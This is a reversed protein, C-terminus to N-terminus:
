PETTRTVSEVVLARLTNLSADLLEATYQPEGSGTYHQYIGLGHVDGLPQEFRVWFKENWHHRDAAYVLHGYDSVTVSGEPLTVHASLLTALGSLGDDRERRQLLVVQRNGELQIDFRVLPLTSLGCPVLRLRSLLEGSTADRLQGTMVLQSTLASEDLRRLDFEGTQINSLALTIQILRNDLAYERELMVRVMGGDGLPEIYMTGEGTATTAALSPGFNLDGFLPPTTQLADFAIEVDGAPLTLVTQEDLERRLDFGERWGGCMTLTQPTHIRLLASQGPLNQGNKLFPRIQKIILGNDERRIKFELDLLIDERQYPGVDIPFENDALLLVNGLTLLENDSMVWTGTPMLSSPRLRRIGTVQGNSVILQDREPVVGPDPLVVSVDGDQVNILYDRSQAAPDGTFAVGNARENPFAPTVLVAMSVDLHNIGYYAREEWARFNWLSAWVKKLGREITREKPQSADCHSPGRRDNDFTDLVCVSTSDYLGAGNFELGDEANSSSRFRVMVGQGFIEDIRAGVEAVLDPSVLGNDRMEDRLDDLREARLEPNTRFAPDNHLIAVYEAYTRSVPPDFRRDLLRNERMFRDYAKFPIALAAVQHETPLFTYLRALNAAKGGVRTTASYDVENAGITALDDVQSYTVDPLRVTVTPPRQQAWWAEAEEQSVDTEVYYGTRTVSLRILQDAYPTLAAHSNKLYANPTGRRATRINLHSLEGQRDGTVIAAVISELDTPVRDIVVIEQLSLRGAQAMEELENLTLLRLIGYTQGVTYAEYDPSATEAPFEIAFEPESWSLALEVAAPRSPSYVLPRRRFTRLLRQYLQTTEEQTLLEGEDSPDTYVDFGYVTQGLANTFSKLGGVLYERTARRSVLTIYESPTMGAFHEPFAALLFEYHLPKANVNQYAAVFPANASDLPLIFKGERLLNATSSALTLSEFQASSRVEQLFLASDPAPVMDRVPRVYGPRLKAPRYDYVVFNSSGFASTVYWAADKGPENENRDYASTTSSWWIFAEPDNPDIPANTFLDPDFIGNERGAQSISELEVLNPMRWDDYGAYSLQNVRDISTQWDLPENLAVNGAVSQPEGGTLLLPNRIWMLGTNLDIAVNEDATDILGDHEFAYNQSLGLQLDGDDGNNEGVEGTDGRYGITQGTRLLAIPDKVEVYRVPRLSFPTGKGFPYTHGNLFNVYFANNPETPFTTSTWFYPSAYHEFLTPFARMNIAPESRGYNVLTQLEKLNPLRWDDYGGYLLAQSQEIAEQWTFTGDLRINGHPGVGDDGDLLTLDRIWMLGTNQDIVLNELQSTPATTPAYQYSQLRGRILDGDDRNGEALVGSVGRYAITQGTSLLRAPQANSDSVSTKIKILLPLLLQYSPGGSNTVVEIPPSLTDLKPWSANLMLPLMLLVILLLFFFPFRFRRSFRLSHNPM